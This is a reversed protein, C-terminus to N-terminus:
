KVLKLITFRDLFTGTMTLLLMHETGVLVSSVYYTSLLNCM